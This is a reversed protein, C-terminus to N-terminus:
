WGPLQPPMKGSKYADEIQPLLFKGLTEGNPMVIHSMFADEFVVIESEVSELIAKLYLVLARWRRRNEKPAKADKPSVLPMEVRVYRERMRFMVVAKADTWGSSFQDAGYKTLIKEVESRSQEIPVRTDEAYRAM